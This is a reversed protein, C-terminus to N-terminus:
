RCEPRRCDIYFGSAGRPFWQGLRCNLEMVSKIGTFLLNSFPGAFMVSGTMETVQFGHTELLTRISNYTFRHVHFSDSLTSPYPPEYGRGLLVCKFVNIVSGVRFLNLLYGIGARFWLLSELEFWGYGNPVTVLLRGGPKLKARIMNLTHHLLADGMHELVESAIIVDPVFDVEAVDMVRLCQPDVGERACIEKGLSISEKDPDLGCVTYNQKRLPLTIMYGTGCGLEIIIDEQDIHNLIWQLRKGHGYINEKIFQVMVEVFGIKNVKRRHVV